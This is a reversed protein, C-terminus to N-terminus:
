ISFVSDFNDNQNLENIGNRFFLPFDLSNRRIYQLMLDKHFDAFKKWNSISINVIKEELNETGDITTQVVGAPKLKYAILKHLEATSDYYLFDKIYKDVLVKTKGTLSENEIETVISEYFNENLLGKLNVTQSIKIAMDTFENDVNSPIVSNNKLDESTIIM